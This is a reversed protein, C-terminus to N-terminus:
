DSVVVDVLPQRQLELGLHEIRQIVRHKVRRICSRGARSESGHGIRSGLGPANIRLRPLFCSVRWRWSAYALAERPPLYFRRGDLRLVTM